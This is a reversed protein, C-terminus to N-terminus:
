RPILMQRPAEALHVGAKSFHEPLKEIVAVPPASYPVTRLRDLEVEQQCHGCPHTVYGAKYLYEKEKPIDCCLRAVACEITPCCHFIRLCNDCGTNKKNFRTQVYFRNAAQAKAACCVVELVLCFENTPQDFGCFPWTGGFCIYPEGTISLIRQRQFAIVCPQFCLMGWCGLTCCSSACAGKEFEGTLVDDIDQPLVM